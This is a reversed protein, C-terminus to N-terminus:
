KEDSWDEKDVLRQGCVTCYHNHGLDNYSPYGCVPCEDHTVHEDSVENWKMPTEKKELEELCTLKSQILDIVKEDATIPLLHSSLHENIVVQKTVIKIDTATM